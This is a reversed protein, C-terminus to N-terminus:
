VEPGPTGDVNIIFPSSSGGALSISNISIGFNNNNILRVQQTVSATVAFVTDFSVTDASLFLRANVNQNSQKQCSFMLGGAIILLLLTKYM